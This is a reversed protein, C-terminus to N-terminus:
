SGRLLSLSGVGTNQGPSNWPSNLGPPPLSNFLVSRSESWEVETTGQCQLHVLHRSVTWELITPKPNERATWHNATWFCRGKRIRPMSLEIRLWPVPRPWFGLVYFFFFFFLFFVKRTTCHILSQRGNCPLCAWNRTWASKLCQPAVLGTCWLQQAWFSCSSLECAKSGTLPSRAECHSAQAGCPLTVGGCCSFFAWTCCCLTLVALLYIFKLFSAINYCTWCLSWFHDM